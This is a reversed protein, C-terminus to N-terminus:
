ESPPASAEWVTEIQNGESAPVTGVGHRSQAAAARSVWVKGAEGGGGDWLVSGVTGVTVRPSPMRGPTESPFGGPVPLYKRM